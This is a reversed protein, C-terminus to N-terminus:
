GTKFMWCKGAKANFESIDYSLDPSTQTTAWNLQGILQRTETVETAFKLNRGGGVPICKLKKINMKDLSLM